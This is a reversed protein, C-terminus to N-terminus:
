ADKVGKRCEHNKFVDKMAQVAAPDVTKSRSTFGCDLCQWHYVNDVPPIDVTVTCPAYARETM